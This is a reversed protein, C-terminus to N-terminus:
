FTNSLFRRVKTTKLLRRSRREGHERLLTMMTVARKFGDRVCNKAQVAFSGNLFILPFQGNTSIALFLSLSSNLSHVRDFSLSNSTYKTQHNLTKHGSITIAQVRRKTTLSFFSFSFDKFSYILTIESSRHYQKQLSPKTWFTIQLSM